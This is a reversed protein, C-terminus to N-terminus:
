EATFSILHDGPQVITGPTVFIKQIRFGHHEAVASVNIEMKMAELIVLPSDAEVIDGKQVCIKHVVAHMSSQISLAGDLNGNAEISAQRLGCM